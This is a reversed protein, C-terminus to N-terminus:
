IYSCWDSWSGAYLKGQDWGARAIAWLIVCATVGSGCYAIAETRDAVPALLSQLAESSKARGNAETVDQWCVNMAGPISGAIPDIPEVEGRYRAAERADVLVRDAPQSPFDRALIGERDVVRDARLNVPFPVPVPEPPATTVPGAAAQWASWGGDLLSARDHGLWRLLWWLRAGFAFRSDDYIVVDTDPGIGAAGLHSALAIPDPLPHRGGHTGVPGSLQRELDLYVAGPIHGAEYQRQGLDRDALAFRCDVIALGRGVDGLRAQLEDVAILM